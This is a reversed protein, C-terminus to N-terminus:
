QLPNQKTNTKNTKSQKTEKARNTIVKPVQSDNIGIYKFTTTSIKGTPFSLCQLLHFSKGLVVDMCM